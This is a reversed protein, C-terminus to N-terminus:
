LEENVMIMAHVLNRYPGKLEYGKKLRSFLYDFAHYSEIATWRDTSKKRFAFTQLKKM